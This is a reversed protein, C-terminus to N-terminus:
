IHYSQSTRSILPIQLRAWNVFFYCFPKGYLRVSNFKRERPMYKTHAGLHASRALINLKFPYRLRILNSLRYNLKLQRQFNWYHERICKQFGCFRLNASVEVNLNKFCMKPPFFM